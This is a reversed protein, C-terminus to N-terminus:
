LRRMVVVYYFAPLLLLLMYPAFVLWYGRFALTTEPAPLFQWEDPLFYCATVLLVLLFSARFMTQLSWLRNLFLIALGPVLLFLYHCAIIPSLALWQWSEVFYDVEASPDPLLSHLLFTAGFIAYPLALQWCAVVKAGVSDFRTLFAAKRYVRPETGDIGTWERIRYVMFRGKGDSPFFLTIKTGPKDPRELRISSDDVFEVAHKGKAQQIRFVHQSGSFEVVLVDGEFFLRGDAKDQPKNALCFSLNSQQDQIEPSRSM